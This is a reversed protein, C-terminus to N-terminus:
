CLETFKLFDVPSEFSFILIDFLLYLMLVCSYFFIFNENVIYFNQKAFFSGLSYWLHYQICRQLYVSPLDYVDFLQLLLKIYELSILVHKFNQLSAIRAHEDM